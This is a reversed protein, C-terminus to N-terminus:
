RRAELAIMVLTALVVAINKTLPGFPEAWAWPLAFTALLTFIAVTALQLVGILAPKYNLLLALGLIGDLAAGAYVLASAEWGDLGLGSVMQVSRDLPYIFASVLATAIWILALGIRLAPRLFYLRAHWLDAESSPELALAAALERPAWNLAEELPVASATNGQKLMTLSDGSLAELSFLRSLPIMSRLTWEPLAFFGAAQLGLWRRLAQTLADTTMPLPGVFDLLLPSKGDRELLLRVGHALDGAHIPQLEWTGDALRLPWPLAALACILATSQGGGGIVLSPRIVTWGGLGHEQALKMCLDDAATKTRHFPTQASAGAGLASIQIVKPIRAAACAELLARPGSAHVAQLDNRKSSRFMGAANVVGDASEIRRSWEAAGDKAFDCAIAKAFPHLRQLREIDRGCPIVEHGANILATGIRGGLFGGAGIILVRM